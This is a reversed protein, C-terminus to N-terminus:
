WLGHENEQFNWTEAGLSQALALRSPVSDIAMINKPQYDLASVLACIGVPGCGFLLVTGNSAAFYGTPFIDAMLVPKKKNITTTGIHLLTSDALPVKVYEAQGGDLGVTGFLQGSACRSSFEHKCYFCKGCSVTFPSVVLDGKQFNKVDSGVEVVEGTFEHGIIFETGSTQHGWFVHLESGCLATYRVKLIADTSNQVSPVPREELAVQMPGKFVVALM